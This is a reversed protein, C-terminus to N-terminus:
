AYLVIDLYFLNAYDVVDNWESEVTSVDVSVRELPVQFKTCINKLAEHGFSADEGKEWGYTGLTILTNHIYLIM